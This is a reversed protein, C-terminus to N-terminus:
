LAAYGRGSGTSSMISSTPSSSLRSTRTRVRDPPWRRRSSKGEGDGAVGLKEEEVLRGRAEIGGGPASRPGEEFVKPREALRDQERGM